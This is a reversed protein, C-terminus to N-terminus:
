EETPRRAVTKPDAIIPSYIEVRDGESVLADLKAFKGFIGVKQSELDIAPYRELIGSAEIVHGVSCGSNVQVPIWHQGSKEAYVVSVKMPLEM